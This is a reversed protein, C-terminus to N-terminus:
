GSGVEVIRRYEFNPMARENQVGAHKARLLGDLVQGIGEPIGPGLCGCEYDDRAGFVDPQVKLRQTRICSGEEDSRDGAALQQFPQHLDAAGLRRLGGADEHYLVAGDLPDQGFTGQFIGTERHADQGIRQLHQLCQVVELRVQDQHIQMHRPRVTGLKGGDNPLALAEPQYRDEIEGRFAILPALYLGQAHAPIGEDGLGDFRLEQDPHYRLPDLGHAGQTPLHTEGVM